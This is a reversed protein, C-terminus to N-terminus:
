PYIDRSYKTRNKAPEKNLSRSPFGRDMVVHEPRQLEGSIYQFSHEMVSPYGISRRSQSMSNLGCRMANEADIDRIGNGGQMYPAPMYSNQVERKNRSGIRPIVVKNDLDMDNSFQHEAVEKKRYSNMKGIFKDIDANHDVVDDSYRVQSRYNRIKSPQHYVLKSRSESFSQRHPNCASYKSSDRSNEMIIMQQAHDRDEDFNNGMASAFRKDQSYMDYKQHMIGYNHRQENADRDRQQKKKLREFREDKQSEMEMQTSPFLSESTDVMDQFKDFRSSKNKDGRYYARIQRVDNDTIHYEKELPVVPDIMNDKYYTRKSMYEILRPELGIDTM